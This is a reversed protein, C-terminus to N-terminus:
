PNGGFDTSIQVPEIGTEYEDFISECCVYFDFISYGPEQTIEYRSERVSEGEPRVNESGVSFDTM